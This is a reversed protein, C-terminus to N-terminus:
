FELEQRIATLTFLGPFLGRIRESEKDASAPPIHVAVYTKAAIQERVLKRGSESLFYWYPVFAVDIKEKPLDFAAFNEVTMDAEGFQFLKKGGIEVLHGLNKVWWFRDSGHKMGLVTVKIGEIDFQKKQKWEPTFERVQNRVSEHDRYNKAIELTTQASSVLTAKPNNKLHLGVSEPHFHDLHIHSVLVVRVNNFPPRASEMASLLEPPPFLYDPDYERHLGDILVSRGAHTVLVGENGVYVVKVTSAPVLSGATKDPKAQACVCTVVVSLLLFIQCGSKMISIRGM